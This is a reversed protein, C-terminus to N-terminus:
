ETYTITITYTPGWGTTVSSHVVANTHKRSWSLYESDSHFVETKM